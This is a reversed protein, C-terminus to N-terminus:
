LDVNTNEEFTISRLGCHIYRLVLFAAKYSCNCDGIIIPGKTKVLKKEKTNISFMTKLYPSQTVLVFKSCYMEKKEKDNNEEIGDGDLKNVVLSYKNPEEYSKLLKRNKDYISLKIKLQIENEINESLQLFCGNIYEYVDIYGHLAFEYHTGIYKTITDIFVTGMKKETM